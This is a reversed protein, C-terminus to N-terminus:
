GNSEESLVVTWTRRVLDLKREITRPSVHLMQAIELNTYGELKYLVVQRDLPALEELLQGCQEKMAAIAQPTPERSVVEDLAFQRGDRGALESEAQVAGRGRKQRRERNAADYVKRATILALLPWLCHRDSLKPFRGQAAGRCLSDFASLAVDEEDSARVQRGALKQRALAVMNQFYRQWLREVAEADGAKLGNIWVTIPDDSM